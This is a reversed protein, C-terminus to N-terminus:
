SVTIQLGDKRYLMETFTFWSNKCFTHSILLMQIAVKSRVQFFTIQAFTGSGGQRWM